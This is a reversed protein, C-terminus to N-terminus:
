DQNTCSLYYIEIEEEARAGQQVELLDCELKASSLEEKWCCQQKLIKGAKGSCGSPVRRLGPENTMRCRCGISSPKRRAETM